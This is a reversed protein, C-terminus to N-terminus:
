QDNKKRGEVTQVPVYEVKNYILTFPFASPNDSHVIKEVDNEPIHEQKVFNLLEQLNVFYKVMKKTIKKPEKYELAWFEGKCNFCDGKCKSNVNPFGVEHPCVYGYVDHYPEVGFVEKFKEANTMKKNEKRGCGRRSLVVCIKPNVDISDTDFYIPTPEEVAKVVKKLDKTHRTVVNALRYILRDIYWYALEDETLNM